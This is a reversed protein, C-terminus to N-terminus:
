GIYTETSPPVQVGLVAPAGYSTREAPHALLVKGAATTVRVTWALDAGVGPPSECTVSGAQGAQGVTAACNTATM